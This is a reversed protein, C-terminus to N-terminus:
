FESIFRNIQSLGHTLFSNPTNIFTKPQNEALESEQLLMEAVKLSKQLEDDSAPHGKARLDSIVDIDFFCATIYEIDADSACNSDPKALAPRWCNPAKDFLELPRPQVGIYIGWAKKGAKVALQVMAEDNDTYAVYPNSNFIRLETVGFGEHGLLHRHLRIAQEPSLTKEIIRM